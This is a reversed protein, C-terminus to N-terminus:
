HFLTHPKNLYDWLRSLFSPRLSTQEPESSSEPRDVEHTSQERVRREERERQIRDVRESARRLMSTYDADVEEIRAARFLVGTKKPTSCM